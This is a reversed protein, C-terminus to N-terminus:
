GGGGGREQESGEEILFQETANGCSMCRVNAFAKESAAPNVSYSARQKAPEFFSYRIVRLGPRHEFRWKAETKSM